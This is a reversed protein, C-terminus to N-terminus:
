TLELLSGEATVLEIAEIWASLNPTDGGTGHTGTATSGAVSQVDVDGLIPLALAEDWLTRSLEGLTIGGEVRVLGSERDIDLVRRMRELSLMTDSTAWTDAFSHRAGVPTVQRDAAAARELAALVDAVGSPREVVAPACVQDGTWNRFSTRGVTGGSGTRFAMM